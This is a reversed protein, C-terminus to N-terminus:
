WPALEELYKLDTTPMEFAFYGNDNYESFVHSELMAKRLEDFSMKDKIADLEYATKLHSLRVVYYPWRTPSGKTVLRFCKFPKEPDYDPAPKYAKGPGRTKLRVGAKLLRVIFKCMEELTERGVKGQAM